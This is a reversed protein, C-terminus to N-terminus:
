SVHPVNSPWTSIFAKSPLFYLSRYSEVMIFARASLYLPGLVTVSWKSWRDTRHAMISELLVLLASVTPAIAVTLASGRWLSREVASPFHLNWALLHLGGFLLISLISMLIMMRDVHKKRYRDEFFQHIVSQPIYYHRNQLFSIPAAEAILAFAEASVAADTDIYFPVGVDQPKTWESFYIIIACSSFALTSVELASYPIGEVSRVVLQILLWLVQILAFLRVLGDTKSRDKIENEELRPLRSIIGHSRALALQKSDLVWINGQLPAIHKRKYYEKSGLVTHTDIRATTALAVYPEFPKWPCYGARGIPRARILPKLLNAGTQQDVPDMALGHEESSSEPPPALDSPGSQTPARSQRGPTDPPSFRLAIGGINALGTHALSWPVDDDRALDKLRPNNVWFVFLNTTSLGVLYEPFALMIGMWALKRGLLYVQKRFEQWKSQPKLDPPVTLHLVSWTSLIIISTCSWVIDM